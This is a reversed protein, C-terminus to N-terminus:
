SAAALCEHVSAPNPATMVQMTHLAVFCVDKAAHCLSSQRDQLGAPFSLTDMLALQSRSALTSM